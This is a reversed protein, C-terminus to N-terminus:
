AADPAAATRLASSRPPRDPRVPCRPIPMGSALPDLSPRTYPAAQSLKAAHVRGQARGARSAWGGRWRSRRMIMPAARPWPRRSRATRPAPRGPWTHRAPWAPGAHQKRGNRAAVARRGTDGCGAWRWGSAPAATAADALLRAPWPCRVGAAAPAPANGAQPPRANQRRAASPRATHAFAAAPGPRAARAKGRGPGRRRGRALPAQKACRKMLQRPRRAQCVRSLRSVRRVPM